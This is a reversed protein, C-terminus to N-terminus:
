LLIVLRRETGQEVEDETVEEVDEMLWATSEWEGSAERGSVARGTTRHWDGTM